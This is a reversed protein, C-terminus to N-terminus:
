LLKSRVLFKILENLPWKDDKLTIKGHIRYHRGSKPTMKIDISTIENVLAGVARYENSLKMVRRIFDDGQINLLHKPSGSFEAVTTMKSPKLEMEDLSRVELTRADVQKFEYPKSLIDFVRADSNTKFLHTIEPFGVLLSDLVVDNEFEIAGSMIPLLAISPETVVFGGFYNFSFQRIPPIKIGGRELEQQVILNWNDPFWQAHVHFGGKNKSLNKAEIETKAEFSGHILLQNDQLSLGVDSFSSNKEKYWVSILSANEPAPHKESFKTKESILKEAKSKLKSPSVNGATNTLLLGVDDNLAICSNKGIYKPMNRRFTRHDWLNFLLGTYHQNGEELRFMIVDSDFSVGVPKLEGDRTKPIQSQTMKNLVEDNSLLLSALLERTLERGDLRYVSTANEPIFDLNSNESAEFSFRLIYHVLFLSM